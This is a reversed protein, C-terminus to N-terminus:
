GRRESGRYGLDREDEEEEKGLDGVGLTGKYRPEERLGLGAHSM